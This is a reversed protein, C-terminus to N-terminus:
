VLHDPITPLVVTTVKNQLKNRITSLAREMDRVTIVEMQADHLEMLTNLMTIEPGTPTFRGHQTARNTISLIAYRGDVCVNKYEKGFGLEWLAETVNSMAILIDMDAKKAEGRLLAVMAQSNKIRLTTLDLGHSTIPTMSEMVYAVPNRLVAKPRYKKRPKTTNGM